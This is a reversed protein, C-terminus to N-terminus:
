CGFAPLSKALNLSVAPCGQILCSKIICRSLLLLDEQSESLLNQLQLLDAVINQLPPASGDVLQPLSNHLDQVYAYLWDRTTKGKALKEVPSLWKGAQMPEESETNGFLTQM